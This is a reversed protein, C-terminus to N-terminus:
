PLKQAFLWLAWAPDAYAQDWANHGTGPYEVYHDLPNAPTLLAAMRRSEEVPILPDDAGHFIWLPTTGVAAAMTAYVDLGPQAEVAAPISLSALAAVGGCVPSIDAFLGPYLAATAWTGFGGMSIGTLYLRKRDGNFEKVASEFAAMAEQPMGTSTWVVGDPCQPFVVIAPFREPHLRIAAGLGVQTQKLGDSGREGAGHLFLIVPWQAEPTWDSPVYVQYRRVAGHVEIVRDLFGTEPHASAIGACLLFAGALGMVRM